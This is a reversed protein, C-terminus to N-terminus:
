PTINGKLLHNAQMWNLAREFWLEKTTPNKLGFGHGGNQYIHLEGAINQKHLNQFFFISNEVKVTKDDAAHVLFAPPTQATIQLENSFKVIMESAANKGILNERSGMHALSDAFSIVPYVLIMFDPRLSINSKNEIVCENFHTGLSSALHGGASFGMVGIKQPNVNWEAANERVMQIAREADQLPGISKNEMCQDDPLRYKLIFAAIGYKNLERAIDVGEHGMALRAYGGGPCVIVATNLSDRKGPLYVSLTPTTVGEVRGNGSHVEKKDCSKHNPVGQPYLPIETQAMSMFPIIIFLILIISKM